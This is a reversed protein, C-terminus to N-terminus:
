SCDQLDLSDRNFDEVPVFELSNNSSKQAKVLKVLNVPPNQRDGNNDCFEIVGTAGYAKFNPAKLKEQTGQRTPEEQEALAKILTVTADYALATHNSILGKWLNKAEDAFDQNSNRHWPSFIVLKELLKPQEIELTQPSYLPWGAFIWNRGQNAKVIEIANDRANTVQGDPFLIITTDKTIAEIADKPDFSEQSLDENVTEIRGGKEQFRTKFEQYLSRTYASQNNYFIAVKKQGMKILYSALSEAEYQTNGVVRLFFDRPLKTLEKTTTGSSILVLKNENYIDVSAVTMESTYSGVVGLIDEGEALKKARDRAQKEDNFDDAIIIKLGFGRIGQWARIRKNAFNNTIENNEDNLDFFGLNIETQAQAVGRLMEQATDANKVSEDKEKLIPIIGAISRSPIKNAELLANNLYILTEPDRSESWSRKLVKFAEQYNGQKFLDVGKKKTDEQNPKLQFKYSTDLIEEGCSIFDETSSCIVSELVPPEETPPKRTIIKILIPLAVAVLALVLWLIVTPIGLSKLDPIPLSFWNQSHKKLAELAESANQYRQQYNFKVMKDLIDAFSDRVKARERWIIETDSDRQLHRPKVGTLAQIAIMGVAYVDSSLKPYGHNQESPMYGLTGIPVTTTQGQSNTSKSSIEKIAGFDILILKNDQKRRMINAPKLDRHIVDEQHVFELVELIETLLQVVQRESWAKEPVIEQSLDQGEVFEQVLYFEGGEEFHAYLRPIQDHEGLRHLIEAEKDFLRKAISFVDPSHEQQELHKVVCDRDRCDLDQALYTTGFGGSGLKKIIRYRNRLTRGILSM